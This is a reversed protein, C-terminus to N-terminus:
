HHGLIFGRVMTDGDTKEPQVNESPKRNHVRDVLNNFDQRYNNRGSAFNAKKTGDCNANHHKFAEESFYIDEDIDCSTSAESDDFSGWLSPKGPSACMSGGNELDRDEIFEGDKRFNKFFNTRMFM